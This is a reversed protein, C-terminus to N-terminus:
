NPIKAFSRGLHFDNDGGNQSVVGGHFTWTPICPKRSRTKPTDCSARGTRIRVRRQLQEDQNADQSPSNGVRKTIKPFKGRPVKDEIAEINM